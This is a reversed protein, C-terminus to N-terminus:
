ISLYELNMKKPPIDEKGIRQEKALRACAKAHCTPFIRGLRLSILSTLAGNKPKSFKM